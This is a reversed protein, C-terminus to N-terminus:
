PLLELTLSYQAGLRYEESQEPTMSMHSLNLRIKQDVPIFSVIVEGNPQLAKSNCQVLIKKM